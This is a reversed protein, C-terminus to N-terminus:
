VLQHTELDLVCTDAPTATSIQPSFFEMRLTGNGGASKPTVTVKMYGYHVLFQHLHASPDSRDLVKMDAEDVEQSATINYGGAGCIIHPIEREEGDLTVTRTMRQYVHAHGSFVADPYFEAQECAKDIDNRLAESSPKSASFSMPPHHVALLVAAIEGGERKPKLRTLENYLFLTQQQDLYGYSESCNSYLGIISVFPADLTFYVGPQTMSTRAIGGAGEWHNPASDCFAQLFAALSQMDQSYTIGDHNGPIAFIPRPYSRYPRYFQSYYYEEEGFYYVVDGLHYFFAPRDASDAQFDKLMLDAVSTENPLKKEEPAGTDGVTHLVIKGSKEISNVTDAGVIGALTMVPYQGGRPGPVPEPVGYEAFQNEFTPDIGSDDDNKFQGVPDPSGPPDNFVFGSGEPPVPPGSAAPTKKKRGASKAPKKAMAKFGSHRIGAAAAQAIRTAAQKKRRTVGSTVIKAVDSPTADLEDVNTHVPNGFSDTEKDQSQFKSFFGQVTGDSFFFLVAGDQHPGNEAFHHNVLRGVEHSSGQNMHVNDVGAFGFAARTGPGDSSTYGTGFVAMYSDKDAMAQNAAGVLASYYDNNEPSTGGPITEFANMDLIRDHVFDLAPVGPASALVFRRQNKIAAVLAKAKSNAKRLNPIIQFQLEPPSDKAPEISELNVAVHYATSGAQISLLYHPNGGHQDGHGTLTGTLLGYNPLPM